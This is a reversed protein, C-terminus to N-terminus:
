IKKWETAGVKRVDLEYQSSPYDDSSNLQIRIRTNTNKARTITTNESDLWSAASESNDDDRFRYASQELSVQSGSKFTAAWCRWTVSGGCAALAAYSSISSVIQDTAGNVVGNNFEKGNYRITYSGSTGFNLGSNDNQWFFGIVVESPATTTLSNATATSGTGTAATSSTVQDLPSTPDTGSYELATVVSYVTTSFNGTITTVGASISACYFAARNYQSGGGTLDNSQFIQSYTNTGVNDTPSSATAATGSGNRFYCDVIVLNGSTPSYSVSNSAAGVSDTNSNTNVFSIAAVPKLKRRIRRRARRPGSRRWWWLADQRELVVAAARSIPVFLRRKPKLSPKM